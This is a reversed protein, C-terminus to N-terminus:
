TVGTKLIHVDKYNNGKLNLAMLVAGVLGGILYDCKSLSVIDLLYLFNNEKKCKQFPTDHWTDSCYLADTYQTSMKFFCDDDSQTVVVAGVADGFLVCTERQTWDM